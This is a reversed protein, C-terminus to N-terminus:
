KVSCCWRTCKEVMITNRILDISTFIWWVWCFVLLIHLLLLLWGGVRYLWTCIAMGELQISNNLWIWVIDLFFFFWRRDLFTGNGSTWIFNSLVDVAKIGNSMPEISFNFAYNGGKPNLPKLWEHLHCIVLYFDVICAPGQFVVLIDFPIALSNLFLTIKCKLWRALLSFYLFPFLPIGKWSFLRRSTNSSCSVHSSARTIATFPMNPPFLHENDVSYLDFLISNLNM